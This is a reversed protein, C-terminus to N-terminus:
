EAAFCSPELNLEVKYERNQTKMTLRYLGAGKPAAANEHLTMIGRERGSYLKVSPGNPEKTQSDLPTWFLVVRRSGSDEDWATPCYNLRISAYDEYNRCTISGFRVDFPRNSLTGGRVGLGNPLAEFLRLSITGSVRECLQSVSAYRVMVVARKQGNIQMSAGDPEVQALEFGAAVTPLAAGFRARLWVKGDIRGHLDAMYVSSDFWPYRNQLTGHGVWFAAFASLNLLILAVTVGIKM